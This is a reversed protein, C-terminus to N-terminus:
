YVREHTEQLVQLQLLERVVKPLIGEQKQNWHFTGGTGAIHNGADDLKPPITFSIVDEGAEEVM